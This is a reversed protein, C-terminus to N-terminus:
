ERRRQARQVQTRRKDTAEAGAQRLCAGGKTDETNLREKRKRAKEGSAQGSRETRLTMIKKM